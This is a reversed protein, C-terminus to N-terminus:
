LTLQHQRAFASLAAAWAEPLVRRREALRGAPTDVVFGRRTSPGEIGAGRRTPPADIETVDPSREVDTARDVGLPTPARFGALEARWFAELRARDQKLLWGIYEAYPRAPGLRAGVGQARAQYLAFFDRVVIQTSWGDLLLHHVTWVFRHADDALRLLAVRLLPARTPDFGKQWDDEAFRRVRAAQEAADLGRLDQEEVALKLRKWVIQVPEALREWAFATHRAAHRAVVDQWAGRFAAADLAGRLTWGIQIVYKGPEAAYLTHFLIGQQMPSLPYIDEINNAKM